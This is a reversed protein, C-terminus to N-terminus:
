KEPTKVDALVVAVMEQPLRTPPAHAARTGAVRGTFVHVAHLRAVHRTHGLAAVRRAGVVDAGLEHRTGRRLLDAFEGAGLVADHSLKPANLCQAAETHKDRNASTSKKDFARDILTGNFM